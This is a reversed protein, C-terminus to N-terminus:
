WGLPRPWVLRPPMGASVRRLENLRSRSAFLRIQGHRRTPSSTDREALSDRHPRSAQKTGFGFHVGFHSSSAYGVATTMHNTQDGIRIVAGIGDRNSKRGKLKLVLWTNPRRSINRWFEPANSLSSTVVDIRGDGDFDAFACGRHARASQVFNSGAQLSVDEFETRGLNRFVSNRQLYETAEFVDVRDSVHSNATFIDKFGDNDLDFMGIGWGSYTRSLPGMRSRYSVDAFQSRGRNRFLPFTEGALATLAIDPLGDNDVDRFDTGM